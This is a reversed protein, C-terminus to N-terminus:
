RVHVIFYFLHFIRWWASKENIKASYNGLFM